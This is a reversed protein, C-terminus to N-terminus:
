RLVKVGEPAEVNLRLKGKERVWGCRVLGHPTPIAGHCEDLDAPPNPHIRVRRFGPAMAEIGLLYKILYKVIYSSYPHCRSRTPWGAHGFEGFHEWTTTDGALVIEGWRSRLVDFLQDAMGIQDFLELVYYAGCPSGYPLLHRDGLHIRRAVQRVWEASGAGYLAMMANTVQSSVNSQSGDALISDVFARRKGNWMWRRVASALRGHARRWGTIRRREVLAALACAADLAGLFGAQEGGCIPHDDDRGHGWEVFHWADPKDWELLGRDNIMALAEEIGAAVQPFVFEVFQLDGTLWYHDRCAMIWHFSWLPIRNDWASPYQSRALGPFDPDEAFLKLSNAAVQTNACTLADTLLCMRNDFNWNVQEFTPCDTFTDDTASVVSQAGIRYIGNLLADSTQLFGRPRSGCNATLVRLGRLELPTSGTHHLAIYRVGYPLFSEFSQLGAHLHLTLANNSGAPWQVRLPPGPDLGEFFSVLLHSGEGSIAEFALWGNHLVELDLIARAAKGPEAPPLTLVGSEWSITVDGLVRANRALDQANGEPMTHTPDMEPRRMAAWDLQSIDVEEMELAEAGTPANADILRREPVRHAPFVQFGGAGFPNVLEIREKVFGCLNIDEFHSKDHAGVLRNAGKKLPVIPHAQAPDWTTWGSGEFLRKGEFFWIVNGLTPVFELQQAVPSVIDTVLYAPAVMVNCRRQEAGSVLYPKLRFSVLFNPLAVHSAGILRQPALPERSPPPVRRPYMRVKRKVVTAPIWPTEPAALNVDELCPLMWRRVTRHARAAEKRLLTGANSFIPRKLGKIQYILGAEGACNTMTGVGIGLVLLEISNEGEKLFSTIDHSDVSRRGEASKAPGHGFVRGNVWGQYLSEATLMLLARGGQRLKQFEQTTLSFERRFRVYEDYAMPDAEHWIWRAYKSFSM